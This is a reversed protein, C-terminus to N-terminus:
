RINDSHVHCLRNSWVMFGHRASVSIGHGGSRLTGFQNVSVANRFSFKAAATFPKVQTENTQRHVAGNNKYPLASGGGGGGRPNFSDVGHM